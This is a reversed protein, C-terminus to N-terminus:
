GGGIKIGAKDFFRAAASNEGACAPCDHRVEFTGAPDSEMAYTRKSKGCSPCQLTVLRPRIPLRPLTPGLGCAEDVMREIPTRTDPM